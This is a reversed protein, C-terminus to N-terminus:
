AAERPQGIGSAGMLAGLLQEKEEIRREFKRRVAEMWEWGERRASLHKLMWKNLPANLLDRYGQAYTAAARALENLAADWRANDPAEGTLRALYLQAELKMLGALDGRGYAENVQQMRGSLDDGGGSQLARDPHLEMALGRFRSKLEAQRARCREAQAQVEALEPVDGMTVVGDLMALQQAVGGVVTEYEQAFAGLQAELQLMRRVEAEFTDLARAAKLHWYIALSQGAPSVGAPAPRSVPQTHPHPIAM